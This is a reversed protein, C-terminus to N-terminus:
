HHLPAEDVSVRHGVAYMWPIGFLAVLAVVFLVPAPEAVGLGVCAAAAALCMFFVPRYLRPQDRWACLTTALLATMTLVAASSLSLGRATASATHAADAHEIFGVMAAGMTAIAATIPLHTLIWVLTPLRGPRSPRHGALDFYTWWAGFGAVVGLLAVVLTVATIPAHALGNVVGTMTEGLVIIILLGFREILADTVALSATQVPTATAFVVIFGVLFTAGIVGWALMRLGAPLFASGVLAAACLGTGGVYLRSSRRYEPADGRGALFWLVTLLGFLVGGAVAFASGPAGGTEPIFAGLPVLALVQLLLVTRGRADSRGHLEHHLTANLWAIWILTFVVIFEGLGRLTLHDALHHSARAVLVVIVLDYFLEVPGVVRERPQDGHPRPPQWLHRRLRAWEWRYVAM